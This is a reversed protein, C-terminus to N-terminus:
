FWNHKEERKEDDENDKKNNIKRTFEAISMNRKAAEIRVFKKFEEDVKMSVLKKKNM